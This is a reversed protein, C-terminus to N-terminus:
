AQPLVTEVELVLGPNMALIRVRDGKHVIGKKSTAKWIEGNVTITGDTTFTQEATGRLGIMGIWSAQVAKSPANRRNLVFYFLLLLLGALLYKV